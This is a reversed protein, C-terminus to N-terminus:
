AAPVKTEPESEIDDGTWDSIESPKVKLGRAIQRIFTVSTPRPNSGTIAWLSGPKRGIKRAFENVSYGREWILAKIRDRDPIATPVAPM